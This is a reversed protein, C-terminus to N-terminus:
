GSDGAESALVSPLFGAGRSEEWGGGPSVAVEKEEEEM